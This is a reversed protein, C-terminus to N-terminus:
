SKWRNLHPLRPRSQALRPGIGGRTSAAASSVPKGQQALDALSLTKSSRRYQAALERAERIQPPSFGLTVLQVNERRALDDCGQAVAVGFSRLTELCPDALRSVKGTGFLPHALRNRLGAHALSSVPAIRALMVATRELHIPGAPADENM